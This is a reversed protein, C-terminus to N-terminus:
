YLRSPSAKESAIRPSCGKAIRRPLRWGLVHADDIGQKGGLARAGPNRHLGSTTSNEPRNVDRLVRRIRRLCSRFGYRGHQKGPSSGMVMSLLLRNTLTPSRVLTVPECPM